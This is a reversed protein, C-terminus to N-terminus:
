IGFRLPSGTVLQYLIIGVSYLDSRSDVAQQSGKGWGGSIQEPSMYMPTGLLSGAATSTLDRGTESETLAAVSFDLVKVIEGESRGEVLMINSPKPNCRVIPKLVGAKEDVHGHAQQLM